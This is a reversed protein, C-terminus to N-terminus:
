LYILLKRLSTVECHERAMDLYKRRVTPFSTRSVLLCLFCHTELLQYIINKQSQAEIEIFKSINWPFFNILHQCLCSWCSWIARFPLLSIHINQNGSTYFALGIFSALAFCLFICTQHNESYWAEPVM